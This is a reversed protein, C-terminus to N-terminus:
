YGTISNRGTNNYGGEEKDREYEEDEIDKLTPSEVMMDILIGQYSLADVTDDHKARPFSLVEDEFTPWWDAQKDFKVMGARCRAQITRARMIKDMRHPKLPVINMYIGSEMMARNIYPGLAKSIQTDEIGICMPNYIKYLTILTQVIEDGDMRERICNRIQLQGNEDMGGVVIATYDAREKLSIALDATIYYTLPKKRDEETMSLLDTKRFYRISDDVPNCLMECSYVEPIGQETLESRMEQLSQKSHMEPWLISSFDPSHARYKITKWMGSKKTSWIKLDEVVTNKANESPMLSELIDDLNMPTGVMIIRGDKSRCPVLSGYFWRRLKDRRDKNAVLEENLIDDCIILDPRGGEFLLGRLKQEAGKAMIRFKEGTKFKIIIDDETCKEYVLGKEDTPLGFLEQIHKSDELIQKIQGLFLTSQAITDSVILVFRSNQFLCAALTYSVTITTSKSHRRPACIAVFQEPGTCLDWLERHFEKFAVANDFYPVLCSGVFGEMVNRDLTIKM